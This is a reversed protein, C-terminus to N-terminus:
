YGRRSNGCAAPLSPSQLAPARPLLVHEESRDREAEDDRMGGAESGGRDESRTKEDRREKEKSQRRRKQPQQEDDQERGQNESKTHDQDKAQGKGAWSGERLCGRARGIAARPSESTVIAEPESTM